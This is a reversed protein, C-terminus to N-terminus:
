YSSSHNLKQCVFQRRANVTLPALAERKKGQTFGKLIVNYLSLISSSSEEECDERM